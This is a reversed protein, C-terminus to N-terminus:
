GDACEELRPDGGIQRDPDNVAAPGGAVPAPVGPSVPLRSAMVARVLTRGEHDDAGRRRVSDPEGTPSNEGRRV